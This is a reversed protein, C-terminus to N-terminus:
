KEVDFETSRIHRGSWVFVFPRGTRDRKRWGDPLFPLPHEREYLEVLQTFEENLSPPLSYDRFLFPVHYLALAGPCPWPAAMKRLVSFVTRWGVHSVTAKMWVAISSADGEVLGRKFILLYDSRSLQARHAIFLAERWHTKLLPALIEMRQPQPLARIKRLLAQEQKSDRRGAVYTRLDDALDM